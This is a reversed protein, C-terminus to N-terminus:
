CMINVCHLARLLSILHHVYNVVKSTFTLIIVCYSFVYQL